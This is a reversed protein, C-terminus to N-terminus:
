HWDLVNIIRFHATSTGKFKGLFTSQSRRRGFILFILRINEQRCKANYFKIARLPAMFKKNYWENIWKKYVAYDKVLVGGWIRFALKMIDIADLSAKPLKINAAKLTFFIGTTTAIIILGDNISDKINKKRDFSSMQQMFHKWWWILFLVDFIELSYIFTIVKITTRKGSNTHFFIGVTTATTTTIILGDEIPRKINKNSDFNSADKITIMLEDKIRDEINEQCDCSSM